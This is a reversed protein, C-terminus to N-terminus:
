KAPKDINDLWKRITILSENLEDAIEQISRGLDYYQHKLWKLDFEEKKEKIKEKKEKLRRYFSFIGSFVLNVL